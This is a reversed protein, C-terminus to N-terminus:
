KILNELGSSPPLSVKEFVKGKNAQILTETQKALEVLNMKEYAYKMLPLAELTAQTDPYQRLMDAVRNAVAVYANRKMYFKAIALEHRALAAKIYAMRALSDQAYVSNPFYQVLTRFNAFAAKMAAADRTARDIGFFDQLFNDGSAFNTLGAMYVVYDVNPSNPYRQLFAEAASLAKTYEQSKYYAYILGLQTQESYSMAPFRNKVAELYRVAQSYDGNQLYSQGKTYLEQESGQEIEKGSSSCASVALAVLAVLTFSTLKRM